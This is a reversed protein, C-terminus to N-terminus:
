DMFERMATRFWLGLYAAFSRRPYIEFAPARDARLILVQARALLTQVCTRSGFSPGAFDLACGVTILDTACPGFVSFCARNGSIDVLSHHIGALERVLIAESQAIADPSGILVWEDPGLWGIRLPGIVCSSNPEVPLACGLAKQILSQTEQDPSLRLNLMARDSLRYIALADTSVLAELPQSLTEAM